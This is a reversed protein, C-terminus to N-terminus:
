SITAATKQFNDNLFITLSMLTCTSGSNVISCIPTITDVKSTYTPRDTIDLLVGYILNKYNYFRIYEANNKTIGINLRTLVYKVM